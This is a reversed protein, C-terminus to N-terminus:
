IVIRTLIEEGILEEIQSKIGKAKKLQISEANNILDLEDLKQIVDENDRYKKYIMKITRQSLYQEKKLNKKSAFEYLMYERPTIGYRRFAKIMNEELEPNNTIERYFDTYWARQILFSAQEQCIRWHKMMAFLASDTYAQKVDEDTIESTNNLYIMRVAYHDVAKYMKAKKFGIGNYFRITSSNKEPTVLIIPDNLKDAEKKVFDMLMLGIGYKQFEPLVAFHYVNIAEGQYYWRDIEEPTYSITGIIKDNITAILITGKSDLVNNLKETFDSYHNFKFNDKEMANVFAKKVVSNVESIRSRDQLREIKLLCNKM